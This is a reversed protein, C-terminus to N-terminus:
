EGNAQEREAASRLQAGINRLVPDPHAELLRIAYWREDEDLLVTAVEGSLVALTFVVGARLTLGDILADKYSHSNAIAGLADQEAPTLRSRYGKGRAASRNGSRM